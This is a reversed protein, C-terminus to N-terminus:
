YDGALCEPAVARAPLTACTLVALLAAAQYIAEMREEQWAQLVVRHVSM